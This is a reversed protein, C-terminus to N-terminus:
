KTKELPRYRIPTMIPDNFSGEVQYQVSTVKSLQDGILKDTIFLLGALQPTGWLLGALPLTGSIPFTATLRENLTENVIDAEGEIVLEATPSVISVPSTTKLLGRDLSLTGKFQDYTLGPEYVDSFDLLLRRSLAGINFIGLAKLFAPLEDVKSFNGNEASFAIRGSVSKRDFYFPHGDWNLGVDISYKKSSVIAESSFKKTLEALDAGNAAIALDVRSNKGKDQWILSGKFDGTQLQSSIPNIRLVDGDRSIALQWDGYPSENLYLQDISLMMNPIQKASIPAEKSVSAKSDSSGTNWSLFGFHLNPTGNDDLLSFNMEDSSVFLSRNAAVDYAVKFNHWTNHDDVVVDDVILDVRSLWEPIEPIDVTEVSPSSDASLDSFLAQWDKVYFRDVGGLLVLGKPIQSSLVQNQNANLLIEGGVFESGDLLLRAEVLTSYDVDIVLDKEHQMVKLQLPEAEATKKGVPEPLDISVGQLNSNITLDVQGDQSKNVFLAGTYATKGSVKDSLVVPLKHWAAVRKIDVNGSIDGNVALVGNPTAESSLSLHSLGGLAEVDFESDTVGLDSSYNLRGLKVRTSLDIDSILLPNDKFDLRLQVKPDVGEKFPVAIDFRGAVNGELQWNSFPQLVSDALPTAKLMALILPASDSVEGKLNLWDVSGNSIPVTLLLDSIPLDLLYGSAVEVSVGAGDLEFFGNVKNATPWNPDFTVSADSVALQVRVHPAAGDSLESHVLVDVSEVKGTDAFAEKIWAMVDPSLATPPLYTLRDAVSLNRGHLDLAIWDPATDRVELRFGGQIDANNRQVLLDQGSILFADSVKQWSVYGSLFDTSWSEEYLADFAIDSNRGRFDIYGSDDSLSFVANINTAKPIGNYSQVSASRLNSLFQFALDDNERWLRVSGNQALGTPNLGALIQAADSKEPLFHRAIQQALAMDVQNFTLNSRDTVSSWDFALDTTPYSRGDKDVVSMNHVGMRVGPQTFSYQLRISPTIKYQQGDDFAVNLQVSEARIELEKGILVDLWVDGGLEVSSLSYAEAPLMNKLPLAVQPARLFAKVRYGSLLGRTEDLRASVQFPSPNDDLYFTASMLSEFAQKFLYVHPINVSHEGLQESRVHLTADFISFNRQAALYDLVREVGVDNQMDRSPMAGNLRWQGDSEQLLISPRVFRIYTFQPSLSLITQVIDLRVRMEDITIASQGDVYLDFGSVSVTPDIGELRGDIQELSVPYGTIQQLNREIQPRYHDLYPLLREVSVAFVALLAIFAVGGWFSALILKRLLWRM